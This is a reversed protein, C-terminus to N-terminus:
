TLWKVQKFRLKGNSFPPSSLQMAWREPYNPAWETFTDPLSVSSILSVNGTRLADAKLHRLLCFKLRNHYIRHHVYIHKSSGLFSGSHRSPSHYPLPWLPGEPLCPFKLQKSSRTPLPFLILFSLPMGNLIHLMELGM